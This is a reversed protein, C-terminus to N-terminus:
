QKHCSAGAEKSMEFLSYNQQDQIEKASLLNKAYLSSLLEVPPVTIIFKEFDNKIVAAKIGENNRMDQVFSVTM